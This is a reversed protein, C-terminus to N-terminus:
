RPRTLPRRIIFRHGVAGQYHLGIFGDQQLYVVLLRTGGPGGDGREGLQLACGFVDMGISDGRQCQPVRAGGSMIGLLHDIREHPKRAVRHRLGQQDVDDVGHGAIAPQLQDLVGGM